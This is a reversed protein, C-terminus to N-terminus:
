ADTDNINEEPFNDIAQESLSVARSLTKEYKIKVTTQVQMLHKFFDRLHFINM